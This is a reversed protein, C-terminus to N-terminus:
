TAVAGMFQDNPREDVVACGGIVSSCMMLNTYNAGAINRLTPVVVSWHGSPSGHADIATGYFIPYSGWAGPWYGGVPSNRRSDNYPPSFAPILDIKPGWSLGDASPYRALAFPLDAFPHRSGDPLFEYYISPIFVQFTSGAAVVRSLAGEYTGPAPTTEVFTPTSQFVMHGNSDMGTSRKTAFRWTEPATLGGPSTAGVVVVGATNVACSPFDPAGTFVPTPQIRWEKGSADTSYGFWVSRSFGGTQGCLVFRNRLSDWELYQDVLPGSGDPANFEKTLGGGSQDRVFADIWGNDWVKIRSSAISKDFSRRVVFAKAYTQGAATSPEWIDECYNQLNCGAGSECSCPVKGSFLVSTSVTTIPAVKASVALTVLTEAVLPPSSGVVKLTYSGLGTGSATQLTLTSTQGPVIVNSSFSASTGPPLQSASLTIPSSFGGTATAQVAYSIGQGRVVQQGSPAMSVVFAAGGSGAVGYIEIDDVVFDNGGAAPQDDRLEVSASTAVATFTHLVQVWQGTTGPLFTQGGSAGGM